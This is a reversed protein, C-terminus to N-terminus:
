PSKADLIKQLFSRVIWWPKEAANPCLETVGTPVWITEKWYGGTDINNWYGSRTGDEWRRFPSKAQMGPGLNAAFGVYEAVAERSERETLRLRGRAVWHARDELTSIDEISLAYKASPPAYVPLDYTKQESDYKYSAAATYYPSSRAEELTPSEKIIREGLGAQEWFAKSARQIYKGKGTEIFFQRETATSEPFAKWAVYLTDDDDWPIGYGYQIERFMRESEKRSEKYHYGRYELIGDPTAEKPATELLPLPADERRLILIKNDEGLTIGPKIFLRENQECATKLYARAKQVLLEQTQGANSHIRYEKERAAQKSARRIAGFTNDYVLYPPFWIPATYVALAFGDWGDLNACGSLNVALLAVVLWKRCPLFFDTPNRKM